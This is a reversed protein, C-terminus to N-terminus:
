STRAKLEGYGEGGRAKLEDEGEARGLRRRISVRYISGELGARSTCLRTVTRAMSRARNMRSTTSCRAIGGVGVGTSSAAGSSSASPTCAGATTMFISMSTRVNHELEVGCGRVYRLSGLSRRCECMCGCRLGGDVGRARVPM